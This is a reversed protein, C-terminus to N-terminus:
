LYRAPGDAGHHGSSLWRGVEEPHRRELEDLVDQRLEVVHLTLTPASHDRVMWFTVRWLHCLEGTDLDVTRATMSLAEAPGRRSPRAAPTPPRAPPIAAREHVPLHRRAWARVTSRAPPTTLLLGLLAVPVVWPAITAAVALVLVIAACAATIHCWWSLESRRVSRVGHPPGDDRTSASLLLGTVVGVFVIVTAAMALAELPGWVLCACCFALVGCLAVPRLWALWRDRDTRDAAM